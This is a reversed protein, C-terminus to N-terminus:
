NAVQEETAKDMQELFANIAEVHRELLLKPIVFWKGNDDNVMFSCLIGNLACVGYRVNPSDFIESPVTARKAPDM